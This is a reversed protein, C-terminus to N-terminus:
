VATAVSTWIERHPVGSHTQCLESWSNTVVVFSHDSFFEKSSGTSKRILHM